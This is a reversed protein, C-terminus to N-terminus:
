TILSKTSNSTNKQSFNSECPLAKGRWFHNRQTGIEQLIEHREAKWKRALSCFFVTLPSYTWTWVYHILHSSGLPNWRFGYYATPRIMKHFFSSSPFAAPVPLNNFPQYERDVSFAVKNEGNTGNPEGESLWWLTKNLLVLAVTWWWSEGMKGQIECSVAMYNPVRYM